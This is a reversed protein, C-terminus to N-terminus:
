ESSAGAEDTGVEGELEPEEDGATTYTEDTPGVTEDEASTGGTSGGGCALAFLASFILSAHLLKDM